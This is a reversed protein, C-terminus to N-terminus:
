FTDSLHKTFYANVLPIRFSNFFAQRQNFLNGLIHWHDAQRTIHLRHGYLDQLLMDIM